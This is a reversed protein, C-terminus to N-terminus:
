KILSKIKLKLIRNHEVELVHFVHKKYTIELGVSPLTGLQGLVFGGISDFDPTSFKINLLDGIEELRVHGNVLYETDSIKHMHKKLDDYEDEIDGVIVEILDEMTVIGSTGGYEDLVVAFHIHKIRMQDFLDTIKVFEYTFFPPTMIEEINFDEKQAFLLDKMHIVGIVHDFSDKYIPVRSFRENKFFSMIEDYDATVELFGVDTRPIMISKLQSDNFEFINHIMEREEM